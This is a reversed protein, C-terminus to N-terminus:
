RDSWFTELESYFNSIKRFKTDLFVLRTSRYPAGLSEVILVFISPNSDADIIHTSPILQKSIQTTNRAESVM